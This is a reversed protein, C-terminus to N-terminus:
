LAHSAGLVLAAVGVGSAINGLVLVLLQNDFRAQLRGLASRVEAMERRNMTIDVRVGATADEVEEAIKKLREDLEKLSERISGMLEEATRPEDDYDDYDDYAM